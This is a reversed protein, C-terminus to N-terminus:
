KGSLWAARLAKAAAPADAVEALNYAMRQPTGMVVTTQITRPGRQIAVKVRDGPKYRWIIRQFNGPSMRTGDIALIKDGTQWGADAAPSGPDVGSVKLNVRDTQDIHIGILIPQQPDHALRLGVQAFAEDYPPAEVGRVYRKFFEGMDTGTVKSVMNEFDDNKYGRGRLYYTANPSKLYFEEYMNRMVDDLSNKGGTKGRILLDLVLGLM